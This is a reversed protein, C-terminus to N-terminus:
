IVTLIIILAPQIIMFGSILTKFWNCGAGFTNAMGDNANSGENFQGISVGNLYGKFHYGDTADKDFVFSINYWQGTSITTTPANWATNSEWALVYVKGGDIYISFGNVAGGENYLVQRTTVDNAKFWMSVTRYDTIGLNILASNSIGVYDSTGNLSLSKNAFALGLTATGGNCITTDASKIYVSPQDIYIRRTATGQSIGGNFVEVTVQGRNGTGWTVNISSSTSSTPTGGAVTWVYTDFSNTLSYTSVQNKCVINETGSIIPQADSVSSSFLFIFLLSIGLSGRRNRSSVIIRLLILFYRRVAAWGELPNM